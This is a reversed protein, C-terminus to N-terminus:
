RKGRRRGHRKRRADGRPTQAVGATDEQVGEGDAESAGGDPTDDSRTGQAHQKGKAPQQQPRARAAPAPQPPGFRLLGGWDIKRGLYFYQTVIGTLNSVFWYLGLGSPVTLTFYGFMLPMMWTMMQQTQQQQLQQQTMPGQTQPAPTIMKQQVYMTLGVLVPLLFWSDPQGLDWILFQNELPIAAHLFDFPYLKDSLTLLSEPAEGLTATIVQYLAIWIPMQVLMPILCGFPNVGAEKYIAMMEAQYKKPDKGKYKKQLETLKPQLEQMARSQKYQSSTLPWTVFRMAITFIVIAIGFNGGFPISLVVLINTMPQVLLLQFLDGIWDM